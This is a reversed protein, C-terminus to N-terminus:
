RANMVERAFGWMAEPSAGATAIHVCAGRPAWQLPDTSRFIAVTPAGVAAALHSVGSDNGVYVASHALVGALEALPRNLVVRGPVRRALEPVVRADAEGQVWVVDLGADRALQALAFFRDPAWNKEVSGSSPHLAVFKLPLGSVRDVPGLRPAPAPGEIGFPELASYLHDSAHTGDPPLPTWQILEVGIADLKRALLPLRSWAVVRDFRRLFRLLAADEVEEEFLGRFTGRDISHARSALGPRELLAVYPARGLLEVVAGARVLAALAPLAVITDGLAGSRITLVRESDM